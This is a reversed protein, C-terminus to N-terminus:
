LLGVRMETVFRAIERDRFFQALVAERERDIRFEGFLFDKGDSGDKQVDLPLVGELARARTPHLGVLLRSFPPREEDIDPNGRRKWRCLKFIRGRHADSGFFNAM